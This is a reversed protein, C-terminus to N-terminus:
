QVILAVPVTHVKGLVSTATVVVAYSGAPVSTTSVETVATSPKVAIKGGGCGIGAGLGALLLLLTLLTSVRRHRRSFGLLILSGLVTGGMAFWNGESRLQATKAVPKTFANLTLTATAPGTMPYSAVDFSCTPLLTAGAPGSVSCSLAVASAAGRIEQLSLTTTISQGSKVTVSASPATISFDPTTDIVTTDVVIL